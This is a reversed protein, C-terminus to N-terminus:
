LRIRLLAAKGGKTYTSRASNVFYLYKLGGITTIAVSSPEDLLPGEAINKAEGALDVSVIANAKRAAIIFSFNEPDEVLGDAGGLTGCNPGAIINGEVDLLEGRDANTFTVAGGPAVLGSIGVPFVGDFACASTTDGTLTKGILLKEVAGSTLDMGYLAGSRPASIYITGSDSALGRPYSLEPNKGFLTAEGGSKPFKYIGAPYQVPDESAGAAYVIGKEVILGLTYAVGIPPSGPLAGFPTVEKTELDIKAVKNILAFSVYATTGDIALGEPVEGKLADFEAIVEPEAPESGGAGGAGGAGGGGQASGSSWGAEGGAGGANNSKSSCAVALSVLAVAACQMAFFGSRWAGRASQVESEM